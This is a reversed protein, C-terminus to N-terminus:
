HCKFTFRVAMIVSIILTGTQHGGSITSIITIITEFNQKKENYIEVIRSSLIVISYIALFDTVQNASNVTKTKTTYVFISVFKM